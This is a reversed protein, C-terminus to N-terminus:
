SEINAKTQVRNGAVPTGVPVKQTVWWVLGGVAIIVVTAAALLLPSQDLWGLGPVGLFLFAGVASLRWEKALVGASFTGLALLTLMALSTANANLVGQVGSNFLLFISLLLAGWTLVMRYMLELRDDRSVSHDWGMAISIVAYLPVLVLWYYLPLRFIVGVLALVLMSIYPIDHLLWRLAASRQVHARPVKAAVTREGLNGGIHPEIREITDM